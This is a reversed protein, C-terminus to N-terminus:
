GDLTRFVVDKRLYDMKSRHMSLWYMELIADIKKLDISILNAVLVQGEVIIDYDKYVRDVIFSRGVPMVVILQSGLWDAGKNIYHSFDVSIFSHMSSYDILIYPDMNCISLLRTVAGLDYHAEQRTMTFMRAEARPINSSMGLYSTGLQM